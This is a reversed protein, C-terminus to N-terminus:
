FLTVAIAGDQEDLYGYSPTASRLQASELAGASFWAGVLKIEHLEGLLRLLSSPIKGWQGGWGM